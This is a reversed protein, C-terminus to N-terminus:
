YGEASCGPSECSESRFANRLLSVLVGLISSSSYQRALETVFAKVQAPIARLKVECCSVQFARLKM